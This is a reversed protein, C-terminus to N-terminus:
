AFQKPIYDENVKITVTVSTNASALGRIVDGKFLYLSDEIQIIGNPLLQTAEAITYYTTNSSNYWDLSFTITSSTDNSIIISKIEAEHQAPVTYIDQNATTLQLGITRKRTIM